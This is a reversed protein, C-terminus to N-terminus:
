NVQLTHSDPQYMGFSRNQESWAPDNHLVVEPLNEIGLYRATDYIFEDIIHETSPEDELFMKTSPDVGDPSETVFGYIIPAAHKNKEALSLQQDRAANRADILKKIYGQNRM